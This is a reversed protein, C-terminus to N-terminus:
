APEDLIGQIAAQMERAGDEPSVDNLWIKGEIQIIANAIETSRFNAPRTVPQAETMVKHGVQFWPFARNVEPDQFVDPRMGPSGSNTLLKQTGAEHSCILKLFEWAAEPDKSASTISTTNMFVTGGRSGGPGVPIPFVGWEFDKVYNQMTTILITADEFMAVQGTAFNSGAIKETSHTPGAPIDAPTPAVKHKWTLDSLYRYAAQGQESGIIATRGDTDIVDGGFQRTHVFAWKGNFKSPLFGWVDPKGDGNADKTMARAAELITDWTWSEEPFRADPAPIGAEALMNRNFYLNVVGPHGATPLGFIEGDVKLAEVAAPYFQSMQYGDAAIYDDLPRLIGKYGWSVLMPDDMGFVLDGIQGAVAMIQVKAFLEAQPIDELIVRCGTEEEFRPAFIKRVFNEAGADRQQYRISRGALPKAQALLMGASSPASAAGAETATAASAAAATASALFARRSFGAPISSSHSM